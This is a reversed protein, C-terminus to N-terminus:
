DLRDLNVGVSDIFQCKKTKIPRINSIQRNEKYKKETQEWNAKRGWRVERLRHQWTLLDSHM